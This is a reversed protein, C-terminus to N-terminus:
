YAKLAFYRMWANQFTPSELDTGSDWKVFYPEGAMIGDETQLKFDVKLQGDTIESNDVYYLKAEALPTGALKELSFPLCLPHLKGDKKLTLNQITVSGANKDNYEEIAEENGEALADLEVVVQNFYDVSYSDSFQYIVDPATTYDVNAVYCHRGMETETAPRSEETDETVTAKLTVNSIGQIPSSLTVSAETGEDNWNWETNFNYRYRAYYNLNENAVVLTGSSLLKQDSFETDTMEISSPKSSSEIWGMFILGEVDKAKPLVFEKGTLVTTAEGTAYTKGDASEYTAVTRADTENNFKKGCICDEGLKLTHIEEEKYNCLTCQRYHKKEDIYIYKSNKHECPEIIAVNRWICANEREATTFTRELNFESDGATVKQHDGIHLWPKYHGKGSKGKAYGIAGGKDAVRGKCDEGAVAIVKGGELKTEHLEIWMKNGDGAGIGTSGGKGEARVFGGSVILKGVRGDEGGGIGAADKGGTAYVTGGNILVPNSYGHGNCGGGIGAGYAGGNAKVSGGYILLTGCDAGKGGSKANGAGIGAARHGGQATLVGDYITIVGGFTSADKKNAQIKNYNGGGGVGAALEGGVATIEGGYITVTGAHCGVGRYASGGGIGAGNEGGRSDIKGGYIIVDGAYSRKTVPLWGGTCAAGGIGAAGKAGRATIDGGHIVIVGPQSDPLTGIGPVGSSTAVTILKGQGTKNSQSHIHLETKRKEGKDTTVTIGPVRVEVGDCLILHVEGSVAFHRMNISKKVVYWTPTSRDKYKYGFGTNNCNQNDIEVYDSCTKTEEVIVNDKINWSRELYTVPEKQAWAELTVVCLLALVMWLEKLKLEYHM